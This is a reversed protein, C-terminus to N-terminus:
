GCIIIVQVNAPVFSPTMCTNVYHLAERFNEELDASGLENTAGAAKIMERLIDKEKRTDPTTGYQEKYKSLYYYLIM